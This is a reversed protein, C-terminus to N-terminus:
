VVVTLADAEVRISLNTARGVTDGDLYVDLPRQLETQFADVQRHELRPHPLHTGTRLRARAALRQGFPLDGDTVDLKGDDPHGRPALDWEGLWQANMAVLTRGRWWSRRAVLHAVFWHLRGDVLVSGLDVPFTVADESHLRDEGGPPAGLTKWLDGGTLGLVPVARQHRRAEAVVQRAAADSACIVGGDPLRGPRGWDVGREITV